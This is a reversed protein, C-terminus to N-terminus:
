IMAVIRLQSIGVCPTAPELGIRGTSLETWEAQSNLISLEENRKKAPKVGGGIAENNDIGM